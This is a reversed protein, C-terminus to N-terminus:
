RDYIREKLLLKLRLTEDAPLNLDATVVPRFFASEPDLQTHLLLNNLQTRYFITKLILSHTCYFITKLLFILLPMDLQTHLLFKNKLFFFFTLLPM